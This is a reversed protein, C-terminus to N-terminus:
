EFQLNRSDSNCLQYKGNRGKGGYVTVPAFTDDFHVSNNGQNLRLLVNNIAATEEFLDKTIRTDPPLESPDVTALRQIDIRELADGELNAIFNESLLVSCNRHFCDITVTNTGLM